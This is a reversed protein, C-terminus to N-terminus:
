PAFEAELDALVARALDPGMNGAIMGMVHVANIGVGEVHDLVRLLDAEPFAAGVGHVMMYGGVIQNGGHTFSDFKRWANQYLESFMPWQNFPEHLEIQGALNRKPVRDNEIFDQTQEDTACFGFWTGRKFKENMPRLLTLASGALEPGHDHLLVAIAFADDLAARLLAWAVRWRDPVDAPMQLRSAMTAARNLASVVEAGRTQIATINMPKSGQHAPPKIRRFTLEPEAGRLCGAFGAAFRRVIMM